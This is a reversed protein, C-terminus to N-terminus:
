FDQVVPNQPIGDKGSGLVCFVSGLFYHVARGCDFELNKTLVLMM